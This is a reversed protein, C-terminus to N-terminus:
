DEGRDQEEDYMETDPVECTSSDDELKIVELVLIEGEVEIKCLYQRDSGSIRKSM